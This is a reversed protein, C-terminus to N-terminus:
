INLKNIQNAIEKNIEEIFEIQVKKVSEIEDQLDSRKVNIIHMPYVEIEPHYLVFDLEEMKENVIFSQIVQYYYEDPIKNEFWGKVYNKTEPCKIELGKVGGRILGDPSYGMFENEDSECFGVEEIIEGTKFQYMARAEPELRNGRDMPKEDSDMDGVTLREGVLEYYADKKAKPTGMIAKLTTGTIKGKRIYHWAPTKQEIEKYLKM